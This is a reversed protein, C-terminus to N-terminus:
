LLCPQSEIFSGGAKAKQISINRAQKITLCLSLTVTYSPQYAAQKASM